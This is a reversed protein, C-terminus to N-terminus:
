LSDAASFKLKQLTFMLYLLKQSQALLESTHTRRPFLRNTALAYEHTLYDYREHTNDGKCDDM